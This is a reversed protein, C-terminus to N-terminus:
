GQIYPLDEIKIKWQYLLKKDNWQEIWKTIKELGEAYIKNKIFSNGLVNKSTDQIWKKVNAAMVFATKNNNAIKKAQIYQVIDGFSKWQSYHLLLYKQYISKKEFHPYQRKKYECMDYLALWEEDLSYNSAGISLMKWESQRGNKYRKYHVGIEHVLNAQLEQERIQLIESFVLNCHNKGFAILFKNMSFPVIKLTIDSIGEQKLYGEIYQKVEENSLKKWRLKPDPDQYTALIQQSKALLDQSFTWFLLTNYNEINPFDQRVYALLLQAKNINEDIKEELLHAIPLTYTTDQFYINKIEHLWEVISLLDKEKPFDYTFQPNYEGNKQIFLEREELLNTPTLFKDIHVKKAVDALYDDVSHLQEREEQINM